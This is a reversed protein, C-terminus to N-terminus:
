KLSCPIITFKTIGDFHTKTHLTANSSSKNLKSGHRTDYVYFFIHVNQHIYKRQFKESHAQSLIFMIKIPAKLFNFKFAKTILKKSLKIKIVEKFIFESFDVSIIKKWKGLRM